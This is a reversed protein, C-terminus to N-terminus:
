KGEKQQKQFTRNRINRMRIESNEYVVKNLEEQVINCEGKTLLSRVGDAMLMEKTLGDSWMEKTPIWQYSMVEGDVLKEKLGEIVRRLNKRDIQKSSAISELLPESDTYIKVPIRKQYEGYLITEIQMSIYTIEDTMKLMALTEADKSSQCVREIQKSKWMIPSARTMEKNALM